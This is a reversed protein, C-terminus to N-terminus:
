KLDSFMSGRLFFLIPYEGSLFFDSMGSSFSM